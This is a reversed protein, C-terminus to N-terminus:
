NNDNILTETLDAIDCYTQIDEAKVLDSFWCREFDYGWLSRKISASWFSYDPHRKCISQNCEDKSYKFQEPFISLRNM